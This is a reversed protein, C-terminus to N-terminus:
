GAPARACKVARARRIFYCDGTIAPNVIQLQVFKHLKVRAGSRSPVAFLSDNPSRALTGVADVGASVFLHANPEPGGTFTQVINTAARAM